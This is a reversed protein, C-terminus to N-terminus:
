HASLRDQEYLRVQEVSNEHLAILRRQEEAELVVRPRVRRGIIVENRHERDRAANSGANVRRERNM